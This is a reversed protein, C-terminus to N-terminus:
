KYIKHKKKQVEEDSCPIWELSPNTKTARPTGLRGNANRVKYTFGLKMKLEENSNIDKTTIKSVTVVLPKQGSGEPQPFYLNNIKEKVLLAQDHDDLDIIAMRKSDSLCIKDEQIVLDNGVAANIWSIFDMTNYTGFINEVKLSTFCAERENKRQLAKERLLQLEMEVQDGQLTDCYAHPPVTYPPGLSRLPGVPSKM